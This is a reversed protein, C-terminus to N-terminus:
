KESLQRGNHLNNRDMIRRTSFLMGWISEVGILILQMLLMGTHFFVIVLISGMLKKRDGWWYNFLSSAKEIDSEEIGSM